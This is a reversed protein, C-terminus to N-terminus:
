FPGRSDLTSRRVKPEVQTEEVRKSVPTFDIRSSEKIEVAIKRGPQGLFEKFRKLISQANRRSGVEFVLDGSMKAGGVRKVKLSWGAKPHRFEDFRSYETKPLRQGSKEFVTRVARALLDLDKGARIQFHIQNRPTLIVVRSDILKHLTSEPNLLALWVRHYELPHLGRRGTAAAM